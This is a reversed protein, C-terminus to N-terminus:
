IELDCEFVNESLGFAGVTNVTDPFTGMAAEVQPETDGVFPDGQPVTDTNGHLPTTLECLDGEVVHPNDSRHQLDALDFACDPLPKGSCAHATTHFWATFRASCYKVGEFLLESKSCVLEIHAEM